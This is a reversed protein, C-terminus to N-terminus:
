VYSEYLIPYRSQLDSEEWQRGKVLAPNRKALRLPKGSRNEYALEPISLLGEVRLSGSPLCELKQVDDVVTAVVQRGQLILWSRFYEFADDSCGGMALYALAWVDWHLLTDMTADLVLRFKKIEAAKFTELATLLLDMQESSSESNHKATEILDWFCNEDIARDIAKPLKKGRTEEQISKYDESLKLAYGTEGLDTMMSRAEELCDLLEMKTNLLAAELKAGDEYYKSEISGAVRGKRCFSHLEWFRIKNEAIMSGWCRKLRRVDRREVLADKLRLSWPWISWNTATTAGVYYDVLGDWAEQEFYLNFIFGEAKAQLARLAPAGGPLTDQWYLDVWREIDKNINQFNTKFEPMSVITTEVTKNLNVSKIKPDTACDRVRSSSLTVSYSRANVIVAHKSPM